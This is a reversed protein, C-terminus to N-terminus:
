VNLIAPATLFLRKTFFLPSCYVKVKRKPLFNHKEDDGIGTLAWYDNGLCFHHPWTVSIEYFNHIFVKLTIPQSICNIARCLIVLIHHWVFAVLTFKWGFIWTNEYSMQFRVAPFLWVFAIQTIICGRMCAIQPSMQFRLTSFYFICGIHSCKCFCVSVFFVSVFSTVCKCFYM